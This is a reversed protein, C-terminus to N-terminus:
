PTNRESPIVVATSGEIATVTVKDGAGLDLDRASNDLRATWTEGNALKVLGGNEGVTELVRGNLGLLAAVNSPTLDAGRNMVRLLLPRITLILLVALAAAVVIQLWWEAGLLNAALGGLSGAAVMLFTFELTLLEIIVCVLIFVLWIIWLYDRLDVM